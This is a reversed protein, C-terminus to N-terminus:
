ANTTITPPKPLEQWYTVRNINRGSYACLWCNSSYDYYATFGCRNDTIYVLVIKTFNNHKNIEPIDKNVDIWRM